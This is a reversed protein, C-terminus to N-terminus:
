DSWEALLAKARGAVLPATFGLMGLVEDGPGSAGFRDISVSDDAWREWGFSAAAEVALIPRQDDLVDARYADPQAGFLDWSPMSVVRAAIGESALVDAAELCLAVESGTGVLTIVADAVDRFVYTGKAVDAYSDATGDLVALDQRSLILLTPGDGDVAIRLAHATENADAPRILRIGPMARLSALHEIPQHTPGDPGLGVSDHSFAHIVKAQMLGALRLAPRSYDSFVFFTGVTPLAGGHMAVGNAVSAMAHERVGFHILRGTQNQKSLAEFSGVKVGTNDTLDAGGAILGPVVDAVADLCKKLTNRTALKTGAEFTPLKAQWGAM